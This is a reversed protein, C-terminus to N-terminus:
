AGEAARERETRETLRRPRFAEADLGMDLVGQELWTHRGSMVSAAVRGKADDDNRWLDRFLRRV